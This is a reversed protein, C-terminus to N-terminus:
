RPVVVVRLVDNEDARDVGDVQWHRTAQGVREAVTIMTGRPASLVQDRRLALVRQAEAMRADSGIPVDVTSPSVWVATTSISSGGPPTVTAPLGFADFFPQLSPRLDTM